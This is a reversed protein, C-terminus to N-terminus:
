ELSLLGKGIVVAQDCPGLVLLAREVDDVGSTMGRNWLRVGDSTHSRVAESAGM